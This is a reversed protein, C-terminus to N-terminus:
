MGLVDSVNEMVNSITRMAATKMKSHGHRRKGSTMAIGITGGAIVGVGIGKIFDMTSMIKEEGDDFFIPGGRKGAAAASKLGRNPPSKRNEATKFYL